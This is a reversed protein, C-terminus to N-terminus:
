SRKKKRAKRAPRGPPKPRDKHLRREHKKVKKFAVMGAMRRIGNTSLQIVKKCRDLSTKPIAICHTKATFIVNVAVAGARFFENMARAYERGKLERLGTKLMREAHNVEELLAKKNVHGLDHMSLNAM